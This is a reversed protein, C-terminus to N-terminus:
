NLYLYIFMILFLYCFCVCWTMVNNYDKIYSIIRVYNKGNVVVTEVNSPDYLHYEKDCITVTKSVIEYKQIGTSNQATDVAFVMTFVSFLIVLIMLISCVKKM